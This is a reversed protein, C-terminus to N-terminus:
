SDPTALRSDLAPFHDLTVTQLYEAAEVMWGLRTRIMDALANMPGPEGHVLYTVRPPREFNSLWRLTERQDAHASMSHTQEIRAAVPIMQGHIKVAKAGDVLDRGRTGAAQYGTFLVTNRADPLAAALHFLVRGGTAMGSSSVVISPTKASALEISKQTSPVFQFRRTCFASVEGRGPRV